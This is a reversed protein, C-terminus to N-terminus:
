KVPAQGCSGGEGKPQDALFFRERDLVTLRHEDLWKGPMIDGDAKLKQSQVLYQNCGTVYDARGTVVGAYETIKDSVISGIPITFEM